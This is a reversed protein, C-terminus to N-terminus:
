KASEFLYKKTLAKVQEVAPQDLPNIGVLKGTIVTELMFYSFLEGLTEENINKLKFIRYSIKNNKLTEVLAKTQARKIAEINKNNLHSLKKDNSKIKIKKSM